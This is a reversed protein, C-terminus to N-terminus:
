FINISIPLPDELEFELKGGGWGASGETEFSEAEELALYNPPIFKPHEKASM